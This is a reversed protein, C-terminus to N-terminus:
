YPDLRVSGEYQYFLNCWKTKEPGESIEADSRKNCENFLRTHVASNFEFKCTYLLKGSSLKESSVEHGSFQICDTESKIETIDPIGASASYIRISCRKDDVLGYRSKACKNFLKDIEDTNYILANFSKVKKSIGLSCLYENNRYTTRRLEMCEEYSDPFEFKPNLYIYYCSPDFDAHAINEWLHLCGGGDVEVDPLRWRCDLDLNDNPDEGNAIQCEKYSKPAEPHLTTKKSLFYDVGFFIIVVLILIIIIKKKM